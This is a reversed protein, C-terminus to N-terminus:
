LDEGQGRDESRGGRGRLDRDVRGAGGGGCRGFSSRLACLLRATLRIGAEDDSVRLQGLLHGVDGVAQCRRNLAVRRERRDVPHGIHQRAVHREVRDVEALRALRRQLEGEIRERRGVRIAAVKGVRVEVEELVAEVDVKSGLRANAADTSVGALDLDGLEEELHLDATDLRCLAVRGRVGTELDVVQAVLDERVTGTLVM